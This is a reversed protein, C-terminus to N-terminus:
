DPLAHRSDVFIMEYNDKLSDSFAKPYYTSSGIVMLPDGNGQKAYTFQIGDIEIKGQSKM